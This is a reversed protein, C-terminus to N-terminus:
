NTGEDNDNISRLRVCAESTPVEKTACADTQSCVLDDPCRTEITWNLSGGSFNRMTGTVSLLLGGKHELPNFLPVTGLNIQLVTSEAKNRVKFNGRAAFGIWESCEPDGSCQNGCGGELDSEFDVQGDGNFDCNTSDTGFTFSYGGGLDPAIAVYAPNNPGFHSAITYGRIRVLGSELKEMEIPNAITAPNLVAPEPVQCTDVGDRPYVLKYSPFSLETFGFFESVTGALYVVKDCVRMGPPTNFNFAFLHNFGKDQESIDTIYFGDSSVRTVIVTHLENTNVQMGELPYPTTSGEGQIDRVSPLEYFVPGSVGAAFSGSDENEDNAFACGPDAPYDILVDNDNDMGDACAPLNGTSSPVYGLDEVWLRAPGYVATVHAKATAKGGKVLVNRGQAGEGEVEIIAGPEVSLRVLGDFPFLGGVANRAELSIEWVEDKDGRNAPLPNTPLPPAAGNVGTVTVSFTAVGNLQLADETACSICTFATAMGLFLGLKRGICEIKM